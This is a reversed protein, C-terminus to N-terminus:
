WRSGSCGPAVVRARAVRGALRPAPAPAADRCADVRDLAIAVGAFVLGRTSPMDVYRYVTLLVLATLLAVLTESLVLMDTSWLYPYLAAVVAAAIGARAGAVRRAAFGIAGVGVGGLLAAAIRYASESQFGLASVGAFYLSFLPPHAASQDYVHLVRLFYPDVFWHGHAILRGQQTFYWPDGTIRRAVVLAVLLRLATGAAAVAVIWRAATRSTM